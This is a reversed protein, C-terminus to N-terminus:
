KEVRMSTTSSVSVEPFVIGLVPLTSKIDDRVTVTLYDGKRSPRSIHVDSGPASHHAIAVANSHDKNVTLERAAARSANTVLVHQRVILAVHVILMLFVALVPILLAIEVTAQGDDKGKRCTRM